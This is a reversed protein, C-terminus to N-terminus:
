LSISDDNAFIIRSFNNEKKLERTINTISKTNLLSLDFNINTNKDNISMSSLVIQECNKTLINMTSLFLKESYKKNSILNLIITEQNKLNKSNDYFRNYLSIVILIFLIGTITIKIQGAGAGLGASIVLFLYVLEEPEKIAARFRVISLAGVLGLSLALSSKVITIIICTTIGLVIFNKSFYHKNNLSKSFKNYVLQILASLIFAVILNKLFNSFDLDLNENLVFNAINNEM